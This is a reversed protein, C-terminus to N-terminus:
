NVNRHYRNKKNWCAGMEVVACWNWDDNHARIVAMSEALACEAKAPIWFARTNICIEPTLDMKSRNRRATV